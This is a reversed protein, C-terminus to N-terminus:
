FVAFGRKNRHRKAILFALDLSQTYNLRPDCYTDYNLHLETEELQQSGGLCETVNEGTMELHVGGLITGMKEHIIFSKEVEDHINKFLRTKFGTSSMQTNGHMADCSWLVPVQTKKAAEIFSPLMDDVKDAGCRVILTLKGAERKPNLRPLLEILEEPDLSPGLKL